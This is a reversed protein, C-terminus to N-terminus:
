EDFIYDFGERHENLSVCVTLICGRVQPGWFRFLFPLVSLNCLSAVPKLFFLLYGIQSVCPLSEGTPDPSLALNITRLGGLVGPHFCPSGPAGAKPFTIKKVQKEGEM